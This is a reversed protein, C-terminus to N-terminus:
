FEPIGIYTNGDTRVANVESLDIGQPNVADEAPKGITNRVISLGDVQHVSIAVNTDGRGYSSPGGFGTFTNDQITIDSAIYGTGNDQHYQDEHSIHINSRKINRFTNGSVTLGQAAPGELFGFEQGTILGPGELDEFLNNEVLGQPSRILIARARHRYFHNNRVIAGKGAGEPSALLTPLPRDNMPMRVPPIRSTPGDIDEVTMPINVAQDLKVRVARGDRWLALEAHVVKAEGLHGGTEGSVIYVTDGPKLDYLVDVLLQDPAEQRCVRLMGSGINVADDDMQTFRNNEVVPGIRNFKAHVGDANTSQLRGSGPKAEIVCNRIFMANSHTIGFALAPSSYVTVNDCGSNECLLFRVAHRSRRAIVVAKAGIRLDNAPNRDFHFRYVRDDASITDIGMIHYKPIISFDIHGTEADFFIARRAQLPQVKSTFDERTPPDFGEDLQLDFSADSSQDDFAIVTGQTYPLPDFDVTLNRITVDKCDIVHLAHQYPSEPLLEVHGLGQLTLGQAQHIVVQGDASINGLSLGQEANSIIHRHKISEVSGLRYRGEPLVVTQGPGAEVAAAIARRIAPADDAKGDGIAGFDMVNFLSTSPDKEAYVNIAMM